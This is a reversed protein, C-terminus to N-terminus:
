PAQGRLAARVAVHIPRENREAPAGRAPAEVVARPLDRMDLVARVRELEGLAKVLRVQHDDVAEGYRELRPVAVPTHGVRMACLISGVGAHTIVVDAAEMCEVLESFPMFPIARRVGPPPTAPGHQVVVEELPLAPLAGILRYFPFHLSGVTVFIM